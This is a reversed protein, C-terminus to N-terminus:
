EIGDKYKNLFLEFNSIDLPKTFYYGQVYDINLRKTIDLERKNEIGKAMVHYHMIQSIKILSRYLIYQRDEIPDTLLGFHGLKITDFNIKALLHFSINQFGLADFAVRFGYSKIKKIAQIEQPSIVNDFSVDFEINQPELNYEKLKTVLECADIDLLTKKSLNIAVKFDNTVLNLHTWHLFSQFTKEIVRQDIKEFLNKEIAIDRFKSAEIIRYKDKNWRILSECGVIRMTKPDFIPLFFPSFEDLKFGKEIERNFSDLDRKLIRTEEDAVMINIGKEKAKLMTFQALKIISEIETDQFITGISGCGITLSATYYQMSDELSYKQKAIHNIIEQSLHRQEDLRLKVDNVDNHKFPQIIVIQDSGYLYVNKRDFLKLLDYYIKKFIKGSISIDYFQSYTNLNTVEIFLAFYNNLPSRRFKNFKNKSLVIKSSEDSRM